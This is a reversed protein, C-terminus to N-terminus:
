ITEKGNNWKDRALLKIRGSKYDKKFQDVAKIYNAGLEKDISSLRQITEPQNLYEIFNNSANIVNADTNM